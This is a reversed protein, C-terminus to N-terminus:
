ICDCLLDTCMYCQLMRCMADQNSNYGRGYATNRYMGGQQMMSSLARKYEFNNPEMNIAQQVMSVADDHWGKQHSIVGKLFFWEANRNQSNNLITEAAQVNGMEIYRRVEDFNYIGSQGGSDYGSSGNNGNGYNSGGYSSSSSGYGAGGGNNTLYDYAENVEKLKEQALDALPNNQYKDPHYKKVLSKYAEKIEGATANRGIGLVEYPDRM